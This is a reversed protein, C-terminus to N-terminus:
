SHVKLGDEGTIPLRGADTLHVTCVSRAVSAVYQSLDNELIVDQSLDYELEQLRVAYYRRMLPVNDEIREFLGHVVCRDLKRFNMCVNLLLEDVRQCM